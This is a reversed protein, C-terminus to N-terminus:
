EFYGTRFIIPMPRQQLIHSAADVGDPGGGLRVDMLDLDPKMKAGLRVAEAENSALAVVSHGLSNVMEEIEFGIM